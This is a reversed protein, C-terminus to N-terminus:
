VEKHQLAEYFQYWATINDLLHRVLQPPDDSYVIPTDLDVKGEDLATTLENYASEVDLLAGKYNSYSKDMMLLDTHNPPRWYTYDNYKDM